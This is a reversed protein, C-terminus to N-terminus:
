RNLLLLPSTDQFYIIVDFAHPLITSVFYDELHSPDYGSGILRFPHSRLLWNAAASDSPLGRLNLFFRPLEASRFYYEHSNEPPFAVSSATLGGQPTGATFSGQCFSFGFVVMQNGYRERLHAGMPKWITEDTGVHGNHAWLVIKADPGAKDLLWVVNEAMYRDRLNFGDEWSGYMHEAQLVLHANQLVQAFAERSSQAEYASQQARLQDYVTQLNARCATKTQAPKQAYIMSELQGTTYRRFCGYLQTTKAASAPDVKGLYAIVNEIAVEHYKMDFGYFSVLPADGPNENHARMWLIMDLVEQTDWTSYYLGQLLEAPDGQGTQVYDNVM